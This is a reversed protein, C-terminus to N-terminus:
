YIRYTDGTGGEGRGAMMLLLPLACGWSFGIRLLSIVADAGLEAAGLRAGAWYAMAGTVAGLVSGVVYRGALWSQSFRLTSAFQLWLVLIWFPALDPHLQGGVFVLTGMRMHVSDIVLGLVFAGVMLRAEEQRRRVLALHALVLGFGLFAGTWPYGWAAGLVCCFWGLQFLVFNFVRTGALGRTM